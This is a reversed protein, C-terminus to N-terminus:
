KKEGTKKKKQKKKVSHVIKAEREEIEKDLWVVGFLYHAAIGIGWFLAIWYFWVETRMQYNLIAVAINLLVYVILHIYFGRKEEERRIEKYEKQYEKLSINDVMKCLSIDAQIYSKEM